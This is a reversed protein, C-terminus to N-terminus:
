LVAESRAKFFQAPATLDLHVGGADREGAFPQETDILQEMSEKQGPMSGRVGRLDRWRRHVAVVGDHDACPRGTGGGRRYQSGFAAADEGDLPFLKWTIVDALRQDRVRVEWELADAHDLAHLFRVEGALVADLEDAPAPVERLREVEEFVELM